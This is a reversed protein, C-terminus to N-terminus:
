NNSALEPAVSNSKHGNNKKANTSNSKLMKDELRIGLYTWEEQQIDQATWTAERHCVQAQEEINLSLLQLLM